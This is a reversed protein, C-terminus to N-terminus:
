YNDRETPLSENSESMKLQFQQYMFTTFFFCSHTTVITTVFEVAWRKEVQATIIVCLYMVELKQAVQATIVVDRELYFFIFMQYIEYM